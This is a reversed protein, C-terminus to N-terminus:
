GMVSHGYKQASSPITNKYGTSLQNNNEYHNNKTAFIYPNTIFYCYDNPGAM